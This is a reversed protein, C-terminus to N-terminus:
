GLVGLRRDLHLLSVSSQNCRLATLLVRGRQDHTKSQDLLNLNHREETVLAAAFVPLQWKDVRIADVGYWKELLPAKRNLFSTSPTPSLSSGPQDHFAGDTPGPGECCPEETRQLVIPAIEVVQQEPENRIARSIV